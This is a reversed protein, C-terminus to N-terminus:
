LPFSLLRPMVESYFYVNYDLLNCLRYTPQKKSNQSIIRHLYQNTSDIPLIQNVIGESTGTLDIGEEIMYFAPMSDLEVKIGNNLGLLYFQVKYVSTSYLTFFYYNDDPVKRRLTLGQYKLIDNELQLDLEEEKFVPEQSVVIDLIAEEGIIMYHQLKSESVTGCSRYILDSIVESELVSYCGKELTLLIQSRQNIISHNRKPTFAFYEMYGFNISYCHSDIRVGVYQGDRIRSGISFSIDYKGKVFITDFVKHYREM